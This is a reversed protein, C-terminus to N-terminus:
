SEGDQAGKVNAFIFDMATHWLSGIRLADRDPALAPARHLFYRYQFKRPCDFYCGTSSHSLKTYDSGCDEYGPGNIDENEHCVGVYDCDERYAYCSRFNQPWTGTEANYAIQWALECLAANLNAVDEGERRLNFRQFIEPAKSLCKHYVRLAYLYPSECRKQVGNAYTELIKPALDEVAKNKYGPIPVGEYKGTEIEAVQKKTLCKRPEIKPKQFVDWCISDIDFDAALMLLMYMTSQPDYSLRHWYRSNPNSLDESTTKHDLIVYPGLWKPTKELAYLKDVVGVLSFGTPGGTSLDMLPQNLKKEVAKLAIGELWEKNHRSYAMAAGYIYAAEHDNKAAGKLATALEVM